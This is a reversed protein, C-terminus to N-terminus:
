HCVGWACAHNPTHCPSCCLVSASFRCERRRRADWIAFYAWLGCCHQRHHWRSAMYHVAKKLMECAPSPPSICAAGGRSHSTYLNKEARWLDKCAQSWTPMFSAMNALRAWFLPQLEWITSLKEIPFRVRGTKRDGDPAVHSFPCFTSDPLTEYLVRRLFCRALAAIHFKSGWRARFCWQCVVQLVARPCPLEALIAEASIGKNNAM